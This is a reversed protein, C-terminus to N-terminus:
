KKTTRLRLSSLFAHNTKGFDQKPNQDLWQKEIKRGKLKEKQIVIKLQFCGAEIANQVKYITQLYGLIPNLCCQSSFQIM